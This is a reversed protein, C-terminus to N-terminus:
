DIMYDNIFKQKLVEMEGIVTRLYETKLGVMSHSVNNGHWMYICAFGTLKGTKAQELLYELDKIVRDDSIRIDIETPKLKGM